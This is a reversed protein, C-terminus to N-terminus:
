LAQPFEHFADPVRGRALKDAYSSILQQLILARASMRLRQHVKTHSLTSKGHEENIRGMSRQQSDSRSPEILCLLSLWNQM